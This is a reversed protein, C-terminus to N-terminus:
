WESESSKYGPAFRGKEDRCQAEARASRAQVKWYWDNRPDNIDERDEVEVLEWALPRIKDTM